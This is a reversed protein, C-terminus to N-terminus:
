EYIKFYTEIWKQHSNYFTYDKFNIDFLNMYEKIGDYSLLDLPIINPSKELIKKRSFIYVYKHSKTSIFFNSITYLYFDHNDINM